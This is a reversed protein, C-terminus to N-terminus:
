KSFFDDHQIIFINLSDISNKMSDNKEILSNKNKQCGFFLRMETNFISFVTGLFFMFVSISLIIRDRKRSLNSEVNTVQFLIESYKM